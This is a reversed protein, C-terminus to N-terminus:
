GYVVSRIGVEPLEKAHQDIAAHERLGAHWATSFCRQMPMGPLEWAGAGAAWGVGSLQVFPAATASVRNTMADNPYCHM